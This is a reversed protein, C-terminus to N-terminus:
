KYVQETSIEEYNINHRDLASKFISDITKRQQADTMRFGDDVIPTNDPRVFYIKDFSKINDIIINYYSDLAEVEFYLDYMYYDFAIRDFIVIDYLSTYYEQKYLSDCVAMIQLKSNNMGVLKSIDRVSEEVVKISKGPNEKKLKAAMFHAAASKGVGHSGIYAIKM